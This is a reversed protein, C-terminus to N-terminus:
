LGVSNLNRRPCFSLGTCIMEFCNMCNLRESLRGEGIGVSKGQTVEKAVPANWFPGVLRALYLCLGEHKHSFLAVYSQAPQQSLLNLYSASGAPTSSVGPNFCTVNAGHVPTMPTTMPGITTPALTAGGAASSPAITTEGGYLFFADAALASVHVDVASKSCALMLSTACAQSPSNLQFFRKVLVSHASGAKLLLERLQDVPRLKTM